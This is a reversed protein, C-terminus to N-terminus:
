RLLRRHKARLVALLMNQRPTLEASFPQKVGEDLDCKARLQAGAMAEETASFETETTRLSSLSSAGINDDFEPVPTATAPCTTKYIETSVGTSALLEEVEIELVETELRDIDFVAVKEAPPLALLKHSRLVVDVATVNAVKGDLNSEM